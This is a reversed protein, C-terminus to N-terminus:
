ATVPEPADAYRAYRGTLRGVLRMLPFVGREVPAPIPRGGFESRYRGVLFAMDLPNPGKGTRKMSDFLQSLYYECNHPPSVWGHILASEAGDNWFRHAEGPRFQVTEGPGAFQEPGKGIAYGIRGEDVTMSETQLNHVHMPPGSGPSVESRIDLYERGDPDTRRGTFTLREGAGNDITRPYSGGPM